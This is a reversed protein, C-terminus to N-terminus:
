SMEGAISLRILDSLVGGFKVIGGYSGFSPLCQSRCIIPRRAPDSNKETRRVGSLDDNIGMQGGEPAEAFM